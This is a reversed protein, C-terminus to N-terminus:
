SGSLAEEEERDPGGAEPDWELPAGDALWHKIILRENLVPVPCAIGPDVDWVYNWSVYGGLIAPPVAVTVRNCYAFHGAQRANEESLYLFPDQRHVREKVDQVNPGLAVRAEDLTRLCPYKGANIGAAGQANFKVTFEM